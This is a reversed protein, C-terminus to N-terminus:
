NGKFFIMKFQHSRRIDVPIESLTVPECSVCILLYEFCVYENMVFLIDFLRRMDVEFECECALNSIRDSITYTFKKPGNPTKLIESLIHEGCFFKSQYFLHGLCRSISVKLKRRLCLLLIKFMNSVSKMSYLIEIVNIMFCDDDPISEIFNEFDVNVVINCVISYRKNEIALEFLYRILIKNKTQCLLDFITNFLRATNRSRKEQVLIKLFEKSAEISKLLISEFLMLSYTVHRLIFLRSINSDCSMIGKILRRFRAANEPIFPECYEHEMYFLELAKWLRKQSEM